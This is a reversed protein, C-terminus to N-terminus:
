GGLRGRLPSISVAGGSGGQTKLGSDYELAGIERTGGIASTGRMDTATPSTGALNILRSASSLDFPTVVQNAAAATVLQFFWRTDFLPPYTKSNAGVAVNSRDTANGYFVNYDETLCGATNCRLAASAIIACAYFICNNVVGKATGASTLTIANNQSGVFTSNKIILGGAQYSNVGSGGNGLFLCNQVLLSLADTETAAQVFSIADSRGGLFACGQVTINSVTQAAAGQNFQLAINTGTQFTCNQVTWDSFSAAGSNIIRVLVGSTTDFAFSKFTRFSRGSSTICSARTATQDNDSGTVRVVGGGAWIAGTYDGQYTIPNGATGSVGCTLTERYTGSRVYVVDGAAVPIAEAGSLTKKPGTSGSTFTAATGNYSDNGNTGDVYYTTM